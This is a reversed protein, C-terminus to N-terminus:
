GLIFLRFILLIINLDDFFSSIVSKLVDKGLSKNKSIMKWFYKIKRVINLCFNPQVVSFITKWQFYYLCLCHSKTAKGSFVDLFIAIKTLVTTINDIRWFCFVHLICIMQPWSICTNIFIAHTRWHIPWLCVIYIMWIFGIAISLCEHRVSSWSDQKKWFSFYLFIFM